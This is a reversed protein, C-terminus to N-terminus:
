NQTAGDNSKKPQLKKVPEVLPVIAVPQVSKTKTPIPPVDAVVLPRRQRRIIPFLKDMIVPILHLDGDPSGTALKRRRFIGSM